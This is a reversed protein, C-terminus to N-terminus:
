TTSFTKYVCKSSTVWGTDFMNEICLNIFARYSCGKGSIEVMAWNIGM